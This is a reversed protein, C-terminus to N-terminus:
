EENKFITKYLKVGYHYGYFVFICFSLMGLINLITDAETLLMCVFTLGFIVYIIFGAISLTLKM